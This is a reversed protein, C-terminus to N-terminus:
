VHTALQGERGVLHPLTNFDELDFGGSTSVLTSVASNRLRMNLAIAGEDPMGLVHAVLVSIPGGSSVVLVDADKSATRAENLAAVAGAKFDKFSPMGQPALKGHMWGTLSERLLRFHHRVLEPTMPGAAAQPMPKGLAHLLAESDYENLGVRIQHMTPWGDGLEAGQQIAALSQEHRQLSGRLVWRLDPLRQGFHVGLAACQMRGLESLRDYDDGGFNAQGHRVLLV